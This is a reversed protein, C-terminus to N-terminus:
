LVDAFGKRSRQFWYLGAWAIFASVVSYLALGGWDPMRNWILVERTQEIIFTLPNLHFLPRFAEPVASIPYFVPSVFMLITIVIGTAQGVDRLYVGISALFWSIGLILLVYPLLVVPLLIVTWNLTGHVALYFALLVGYSVATHFLVAGMAVVPLIQLPFVVKKVYNANSLILSPARGISEAFMAHVIMGSFILIAFETKDGTGGGWRATFVVSFLFTYVALMLIPHFFSWVIGLVSGRYRGIVERRVMQRILDRSQWLAMPGQVPGAANVNALRPNSTSM